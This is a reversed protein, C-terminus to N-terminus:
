ILVEAIKFDIENDIDISDRRDMLYPVAESYLTQLGENDLDDISRVYIAGNPHYTEQQDQSRTNGTLMPNTEFVTSWHDSNDVHFAFSVAFDYSTASFVPRGKEEYLSIAGDVHISKRLPATPLALIFAGDRVGFIKERKEKLYDFIKVKDGAEDPERFDLSLKDSGLHDRALEYYEMSDTSLIVEDIQSAGMCAQLTWVLLPKGALDMVNKNPLRKSGSRAPVFATYRMPNGGAVKDM